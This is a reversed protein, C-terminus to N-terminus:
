KKIRFFDFDAYGGRKADLSSVSFVGVKAGVWKGPKATFAKGIKKFSNGDESYSFWCTADPASVEVKFYVTNSKVRKLENTVENVGDMADLAQTQEIFFGNKDHTLTLTAYQMGFIMLGVRKGTTAEEPELKVVTTATFQPAPFKQLLLNPMLWLNKQQVEPKISFLRLYEKGRIQASWLVNPNAQWQWQIGLTDTNFEDTEPPTVIPNNIDIKPKTYTLVPEGIGNKDFDEGMVPWDNEWSMPQLHVVRGYADKDQFHFFWDEGQPTSVWAGQHPGNIATSGQELVVKEEYPGYVDKSRLILQWGTSVGGAPAFIYYYGNRKYFKSGEVTPHNEHGDFVHKGADLVQTAEKNMRHVTLLSKVGARSGAWGHVLYSNGDDDWLPCPDIAGQAKLVLVPKEWQGRPDKTKVRFIGQDPDGWFIYFEGNHYQISPAWVGNGHQPIKFMEDPFQRPLAYNILQWNILDRSHLVPLGPAANFSSSTMYYDGNVGVVDPDSYDAHLIPNKYTGDKQDAVWVESTSEQARCTLSLILIYAVFPIQKLFKM